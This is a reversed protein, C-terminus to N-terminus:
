RWVCQVSCTKKRAIQSGSKGSILLKGSNMQYKMKQFKKTTIMKRRKTMIIVTTKIMKLSKMKRIDARPVLIM